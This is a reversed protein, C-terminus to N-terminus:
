YARLDGPRECLARVRNTKQNAIVIARERAAEVRHKLTKTDSDNTRGDPYGFCIAMATRNTRVTRDSHRSQNSIM